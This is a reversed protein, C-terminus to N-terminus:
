LDPTKKARAKRKESSRVQDIKRTAAKIHEYATKRDLEMRSAIESLKLGYEYKLSFALQQKETLGHKYRSLDTKHVLGEVGKLGRKSGKRGTVITASWRRKLRRLQQDLVRWTLAQIQEVSSLSKVAEAQARDNADYRGARLPKPLADNIRYPLLEAVDNVERAWAPADGAVLNQTGTLANSEADGLSPSQTHRGAFMDYVIGMLKRRALLEFCVTRQQATAEPSDFLNRVNPYRARLQNVANIESRLVETLLEESVFWFPTPSPLYDDDAFM